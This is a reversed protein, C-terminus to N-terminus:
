FADKQMKKEKSYPKVQCAVHKPFQQLHRPSFSNRVRPARRRLDKRSFSKCFNAYCTGHWGWLL